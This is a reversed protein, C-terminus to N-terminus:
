EKAAQQYTKVSKKAVESFCAIDPRYIYKSFQRSILKSVNRYALAPTNPVVYFYHEAECYIPEDITTFRDGQIANGADAAIDVILCGKKLKEQDSFSLIPSGEDGVEIGNIIIDFTDLAAYFQPLTRRYFMRVNASFKSLGHFAGQSVNGSGLVAIKQNGDPLIGYSLLAHLTGAYGAYFSNQYILNEPLWDARIQQNQYFITPLRNDLDVVILNKPIAQAEMFAKGSGFPHTWGIIIQNDRIFPYDSPQILKLSFIGECEAFIEERTMITAGKDRYAQDSIALTKGFGTEVFLENEVDHIDEPLLPVRKENPFNSRVFGLRM